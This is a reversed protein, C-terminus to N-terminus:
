LHPRYPGAANGAVADTLRGLPPSEVPRRSGVVLSSPQGDVNGHKDAEDRHDNRDLDHEVEDADDVLALRERESGDPQQPPPELHEDPDSGGVLHEPEDADQDGDRDGHPLRLSLHEKGPEGGLDHGQEQEGQDCQELPQEGGRELKALVVLERDSGHGDDDVEVDHQGPALHAQGLEALVHADGHGVEAVELGALDARDAEGRELGDACCQVALWSVEDLITRALVRRVSLAIPGILSGVRSGSTWRASSLLSTVYSTSGQSGSMASVAAKQACEPKAMSCAAFVMRTAELFTAGGFYAAHTTSPVVRNSTLLFTLSSSATLRREKASSSVVTSRVPMTIPPTVANPMPSRGM